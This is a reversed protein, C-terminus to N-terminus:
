QIKIINSPLTKEKTGTSCIVWLMRKFPKIDTSGHGDTFYVLNTYLNRNTNYYKIVETFDTGGRGTIYDNFKGKFNYKNTIKTDAEVITVTTGTKYIHYIENYFEKLDDKNISGSTDIAVLINQKPLTKIGAFDPFRLSNMRRNKKTYYEKSSCLTRRLYSKWDFFSQKPTFLSSIYDKLEGPINGRSRETQKVTEKLVHDIQNKILEKESSTLEDFEKWTPHIDTDYLNMLADCPENSNLNKQLEQYYYKTGEKLELNLEPYTSPLLAGDPLWDKQIYQNLSIDAAINFLKKDAYYSRTTLHFFCIHLVEHLFLGLKHDNSLSEWFTPNILLKINIGDKAVGATPLSESFSKQLNLMFFGYFPSKIMLLKGIDSISKM